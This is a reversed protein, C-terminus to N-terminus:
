AAPVTSIHTDDACKDNNVAQRRVTFNSKSCSSASPLWPVARWIVGHGRDGDCVLRAIELLCREERGRCETATITIKVDKSLLNQTKKIECGQLFLHTPPRVPARRRGRAAASVSDGTLSFANKLM